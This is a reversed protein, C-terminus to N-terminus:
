ILNTCQTDTKDQWGFMFFSRTVDRRRSRYKCQTLLPPDKVSLSIVVFSGSLERIGFSQRTVGLACKNRNRDKWPLSQHRSIRKLHGSCFIKVKPQFFDTKSKDSSTQLCVIKTKKKDQAVKSFALNIEKSLISWLRSRFSKMLAKTQSRKIKKISPKRWRADLQWYLKIWKQDSILKVRAAYGLQSLRRWGM